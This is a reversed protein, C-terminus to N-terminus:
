PLLAMGATLVPSLFTLAASTAASVHETLTYAEPPSWAHALLSVRVSRSWQASVPTLCAAGLM